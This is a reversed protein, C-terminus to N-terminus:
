DLDVQFPVRIAVTDNAYIDIWWLGHIAADFKIILHITAGTVGAKIDMPAASQTESRSNNPRLVSFAVTVTTNEEARVQVLCNIEQPIIIAPDLGPPISVKVKDVMRIASHISGERLVMQCTFASVYLAV